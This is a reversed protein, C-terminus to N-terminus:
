SENTAQLRFVAALGRLVLVLSSPNIQDVTVLSQSTALMAVEPRTTAVRPRIKRQHPLDPFSEPLDHWQPNHDFPSTDPTISEARFAIELM